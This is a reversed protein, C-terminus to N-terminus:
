TARLPPDTIRSPHHSLPTIEMTIFPFFPLGSLVEHLEENSKVDFVSVNGFLGSTRWLHLWVGNKQLDMSYNREREVLARGDEDNLDRPWNVKMKVLFLM